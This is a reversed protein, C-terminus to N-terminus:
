IIKATMTAKTTHPIDYGELDAPYTDTSKYRILFADSVYDSNDCEFKFKYKLDVNGLRKKKGVVRVSWASKDFDQNIKDQFDPDIQISHLSYGLSSYENSKTNYANRIYSAAPENGYKGLINFYVMQLALQYLDYDYSLKVELNEPESITLDSLKIQYYRVFKKPNGNEDMENQYPSCYYTTIKDSGCDLSNIFFDSFIGTIDPVKRWDSYIEGDGSYSINSNSEYGRTVPRYLFFKIPYNGDRRIYSQIRYDYKPFTFTINADMRDKRITFSPKKYTFFSKYEYKKTLYFNSDEDRIITYTITKEEDTYVFKRNALTKHMSQQIYTRGQGTEDDIDSGVLDTNRRELITAVPYKNFFQREANTLERKEVPLVVYAGTEDYYVVNEIEESIEITPMLYNKNVNSTLDISELGSSTKKKLEYKAM